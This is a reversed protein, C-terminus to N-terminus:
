IEKFEEGQITSDMELDAQIKCVSFILSSGKKTRFNAKM